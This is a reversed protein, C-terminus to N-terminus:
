GVVNVVLMVLSCLAKGFSESPRTISSVIEGWVGFKWARVSTGGASSTEVYSGEMAGVSSRRVFSFGSCFIEGGALSHRLRSVCVHPHFERWNKELTGTGPSSSSSEKHTHTQPHHQSHGELVQFKPNFYVYLVLYVNRM